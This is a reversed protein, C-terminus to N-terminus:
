NEKESLSFSKDKLIMVHEDLSSLSIKQSEEFKNAIWGEIEPNNKLMELYDFYEEMNIGIVELIM